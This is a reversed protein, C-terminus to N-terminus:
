FDLIGHPSENKFRRLTQSHAFPGRRAATGAIHDHPRNRRPYAGAIQLMIGPAIRICLVGQNATMFNATHNRFHARVNPSAPAIIQHNNFRDHAAAMAMRAPVAFRITAHIEAQDAEM